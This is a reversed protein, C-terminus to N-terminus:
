RPLLYMPPDATLGAKIQRTLEDALIEEAGAELGDLARAAIEEPSSKPADIGSTMDTDVFAMHLTAVQTGQGRLDMRLCNSLSWVASKSVAYNGFTSGSIFSAVSAV